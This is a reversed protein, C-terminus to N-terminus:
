QPDGHTDLAAQYIDDPVDLELETPFPESPIDVTLNLTKSGPPVRVAIIFPRPKENPLLWQDTDPFLGEFQWPLQLAAARAPGEKTDFVAADPRDTYKGTITTGTADWYPKDDDQWPAWAATASMRLLWVPTGRPYVEAEHVDMDPIDLSCGCPQTSLYFGANYASLTIDQVRVTLLPSTDTAAQVTPVPIPTSSGTPTPTGTIADGATTCGATALAAAVTIGAALLLRRKMMDKRPRM